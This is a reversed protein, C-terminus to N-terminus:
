QKKVQNIFLPKIISIYDIKKYSSWLYFLAFYLIGGIILILLNNLFSLRILGFRLILLLFISPVLIQVMLKLPFLEVLRIKFYKSIFILMAFINAIRCIVSITTILYPSPFLKVCIYELTILLFAHALHVNAYFKNAGIALILGIYSIMSFLNVILKIRFYIGSNEYICGFLVVMVIDAFFWFYLVLPYIIMVSKEFVSIWVPLIEKKPNANEYIKKSFLPTLVTSTAGVIMGVFPLELAGNSFEAFVAAGFYRSIFFQDASSIIVGWLSAYMLPLSFRFIERYSIPCHENGANKVPLYKLYLAVVFCIFSAITFGIIAQIYGGKFLIVPLAVLLLKLVNNLVTYVAMFQTRRYTALIGELGMTPLMFFPVPSFVKLALELDPNKLIVAIQPSFIFLVVSFSGGLLFFLNTIKKILKKAQDIPIRPLFYSIAKPLGLTFVSLLTNYVYLVQNYTGYDDKPFYRSLIMSSLIGFGFAFLSGLSIWFSQITNNTEKAKM